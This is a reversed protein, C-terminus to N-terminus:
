QSRTIHGISELEASPPCVHFINIASVGHKVASFVGKEDHPLPLIQSM